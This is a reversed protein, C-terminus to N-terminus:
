LSISMTALKFKNSTIYDMSFPFDMGINLYFKSMFSGCFKSYIKWPISKVYLIFIYIYIYLSLCYEYAYITCTHICLVSLNDCIVNWYLHFLHVVSIYQIMAFSCLITILYIFWVNIACIPVSLIFWHLYVTSCKLQM